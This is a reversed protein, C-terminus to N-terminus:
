ALLIGSVNIDADVLLEAHGKDYIDYVQGNITTSGAHSWGDDLTKVRDDATGLITLRTMGDATDDSIRFVDLRDLSLTNSGAGRLDIAEISALTGSSFKSFDLTQGVGDLRLTDHGGGGDIKMFGGTSIALVDDGAGSRIVDAGGKGALTDNGLGGILIEAGATGTTTVATDGKGFAGGFIIHATGKNFGDDYREGSIVLDDFGDNNIDGASSVVAGDSDDFGGTLLLGEDGNLNSVNLVHNFGTAVGFGKDTGFIVYACGTGNNNWAGVIIDDFGDGNVDGAASVNNILHVNDKDGTITFGFSGLSALDFVQKVIDPDDSKPQGFVVYIKGEDTPVGILLDDRGDGNIDGASSIHKTGTGDAENGLIMMGEANVFTGLNVIRQGGATLTGIGSKSGYVIYTAGSGAGGRTNGPASIMIDALGDGNVDGAAAISSGALDGAAGGTFIIGQSAPLTTIDLSRKGGSLTGLGSDAGFVVYAAGADTGSLDATGAGFFLDDIGDGNFDGGRTAFGTVLSQDADLSAINLIQQTGSSTGFGKDTGFVLIGSSFFDDIGDGNIDGAYVPLGGQIVLGQTADFAPIDIWGQSSNFGNAAGYLVYTGDGGISIDDFGDGNIDGAHAVNSGFWAHAFEGYVTFGHPPPQTISMVLPESVVKLPLATSDASVNGAADVAKATIAYSDIALTGATFSWAGSGNATTSGLLTNGAYVYVTANAEASGTFTPTKDTTVEFDGIHTGGTFGISPALPRVTDVTLVGAPNTIVDAFNAPKGTASTIAASGRDFDDIALDAVSEGTGVTYTFTLTNSGSGASYTASAGNNLVLLPVGGSVTVAESLTVIFSVSEGAKLTGDNAGYSVATVKPITGPGPSSTIGIFDSAGLTEKGALKIAMDALSDSNTDIYVTTDGGSAAMWVGNKAATDGSWKLAHGLTDVLGRLNIRDNTLTSGTEALSDFDTILDGQAPSFQHSATAASSSASNFVFRDAGAGGSLSDAGGGSIITDNGASGSIADGGAGGSLWDDGAGGGIVDRGAQGSIRDAGDQGFLTDAGNGGNVADDGDNGNLTDSGANGWLTDNGAGGLIKDNGGLGQVRDDGLTTGASDALMWATGNWLYHGNTNYLDASGTGNITAM